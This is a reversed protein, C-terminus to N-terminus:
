HGSGKRSPGSSHPQVQEELVLRLAKHASKAEDVSLSRSTVVNERVKISTSLLVRCEAFITVLEEIFKNVNNDSTGGEEVGKKAAEKLEVARERMKKAKPGKM